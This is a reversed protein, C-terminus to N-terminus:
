GNLNSVLSLLLAVGGAGISLGFLFSELKEEQIINAYYKDKENSIRDINAQLDNAHQLREKVIQLKLEAFKQKLSM